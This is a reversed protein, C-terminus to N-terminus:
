DDEFYEPHKTKPDDFDGNSYAATVAAEIAVWSTGSFFYNWDNESDHLVFVLEDPEQDVETDLGLHNIGKDNLFTQIRDRFESAEM